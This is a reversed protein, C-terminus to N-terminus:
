HLFNLTAMKGSEFLQNKEKLSMKRPQSLINGYGIYVTRGKENELDRKRNMSEMIFNVFSIAYDKFNKITYPSIGLSTSFYEVQEKRDLKFGLTQMNHIISDCFLPSGGHVCSDFFNIPYNQTVGGDVYVQYNYGKIRKVPQRGASDLLVPEYFFPISSSIRVATKLPMQPTTAFSFVEAQQKSLNTGVCYFDKFSTNIKRLSDLQYFTLLPNGTKQIVLTDLWNTFADGKHIGFKNKARKYKGFIGGKGDNFHQIKLKVMITYIEKGTYGLSLMLGIIAGASTGGIKEINQLIGKQELVQIAGAFAIGKVGGGEFVLNKYQANTHLSIFFILVFFFKNAM